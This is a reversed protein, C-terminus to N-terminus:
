IDRKMINTLIRVYPTLRPNSRRASNILDTEQNTLPSSFLNLLNPYIEKEVFSKKEYGLCLLITQVVSMSRVKLRQDSRLFTKLLMEFEPLEWYNQYVVEIIHQIGFNFHSNQRGKMMHHLFGKVIERFIERDDEFKGMIFKIICIGYKDCGIELLHPHILDWMKQVLRKEFTEVVRKYVFGANPNRITTRLSICLCSFFLDREQESGLNEIFTQLFFIGKQDCCIFEFESRLRHLLVVRQNTDLKPLILQILFNGYISCALESLIPVCSSFVRDLISSQLRPDLKKVAEQLIMCSSRNKIIDRLSRNSRSVRELQVKEQLNLVGKGMKELEKEWELEQKSTDDELTAFTVKQNRNRMIEGYGEDWNRAIYFNQSKQNINALRNAGHVFLMSQTPGGTRHGVTLKMDDKVMINFRYISANAQENMERAQINKYFGSKCIIRHHESYKKGFSRKSITINYAYLQLQSKNLESKDSIMSVTRFYIILTTEPDIDLACFYKENNTVRTSHDFGLLYRKSVKMEKLTFEIDAISCMNPLELSTSRKSSENLGDMDMDISASMGNEKSEKLYGETRLESEFSISRRIFSRIRMQLGFEASKQFKSKTLDKYQNLNNNNQSSILKSLLIIEVKGMKNEILNEIEHISHHLRDLCWEWENKDLGLVIRSSKIVMYGFTPEQISIFSGSKMIRPSRFQDQYYSKFDSPTMLIIDEAGETGKSIGKTASNTIKLGIPSPDM